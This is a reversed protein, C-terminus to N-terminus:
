PGEEKEITFSLQFHSLPLALSPPPARGSPGAVGGAAGALARGLQDREIPQRSFVAYVREPGPADDLAISDPLATVGGAAVPTSPHYVSATGRGDISAVAVFCAQGSAVTFRVRDGARLRTGDHVPIVANGHQAYVKFTPAGAGKVGLEGDGGGGVSSSSPAGGSSRKGGGGAVVLVLAAIAAAGAAGTAIWFPMLWPARRARAEVRPLTRPLVSATFRQVDARGDTLAQRCRECAALHAAVAPPAPPASGGDAGALLARALDMRGLHPPSAADDSM